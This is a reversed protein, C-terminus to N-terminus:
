QISTCTYFEETNCTTSCLQITALTAFSSINTQMTRTTFCKSQFSGGTNCTHHPIQRCPKTKRTSALSPSRRSSALLSSAPSFLPCLCQCLHHFCVFVFFILIFSFSFLMAIEVLVFFVLYEPHPSPFVLPLALCCPVPHKKKM